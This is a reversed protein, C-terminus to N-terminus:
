KKGMSHSEIHRDLADSRTILAGCHPCQIQSRVDELDALSTIATGSGVTMRGRLMAKAEAYLHCSKWHRAREGTSRNMKYCRSGDNPDIYGCPIGSGGPRDDQPINEPSVRSSPLHAPNHSDYM